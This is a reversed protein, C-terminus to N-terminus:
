DKHLNPEERMINLTGSIEREDIKGGSIDLELFYHFKYKYVILEREINLLLIVIFRNIFM